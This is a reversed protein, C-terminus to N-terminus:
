VSVNAPNRISPPRAASRSPRRRTNRTPVASNASEDSAQASASERPSSIPARASCPKPPATSEGAVSEIMVEENASPRSRLRASPTQPAVPASPAEDPASTPPSSVCVSPQSAIKAMLTGIPSAIM